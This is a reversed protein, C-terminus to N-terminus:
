SAREITDSQFEPLHKWAVITCFDGMENVKMERSGVAYSPSEPCYYDVQILTHNGSSQGGTHLAFLYYGNSKPKEVAWNIWGTDKHSSAKSKINIGGGGAINFYDTM